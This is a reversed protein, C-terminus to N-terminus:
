RPADPLPVEQVRDVGAVRLRADTLDAPRRVVAHYSGPEAARDLTAELLAGDARRGRISVAADVVPRGDRERLRVTYRTLGDALPETAVEVRVEGESRLGARSPLASVEPQSRPPPPSKVDPARALARAAPRVAEQRAAPPRPPLERVVAPVPVAAPEPPGAAAGVNPADRLTAPESAAPPSQAENHAEPEPPSPTAGVSSASTPQAMRLSWTPLQGWFVLWAGAVLVLMVVVIAVAALRRRQKRRRRERRRIREIAEELELDEAPDPSRM